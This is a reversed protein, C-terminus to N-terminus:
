RSRLLPPSGHYGGAIGELVSGDGEVAPDRGNGPTRASWGATWGLLVAGGHTALSISSVYWDGEEEKGAQGSQPM